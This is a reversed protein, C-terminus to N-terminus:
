VPYFLRTGDAEMMRIPHQYLRELNEATVVEAVPGKIQTDADVMLLAHTCFRTVLNVDHLVMMTAGNTESIKEVMMELLTIQH